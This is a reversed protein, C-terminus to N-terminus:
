SDYRSGQLDSLFADSESLVQLTDEVTRPPEIAPTPAPSTDEIEADIVAQAHDDMLQELEQFAQNMEEKVTLALEVKQPADMGNIRSRFEAIKLYAEIAKIDGSLVRPWLAAQARDIRANELDRMDDVSGLARSSAALSSSIIRGVREETIDLKRAIDAHSLGALRFSLAQQRLYAGKDKKEAATHAPLNNPHPQDPTPSANKLEELPNYNEDKM